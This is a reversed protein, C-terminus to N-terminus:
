QFFPFAISRIWPIYPRVKIYVMPVEGDHWSAIGILKDDVESVLASGDDLVYLTNEVNTQTCITTDSRANFDLSKNCKEIPQVKIEYQKLM